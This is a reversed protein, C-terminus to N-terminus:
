GVKRRLLYVREQSLGPLIDRYEEIIYNKSIEREADASEVICFENITGGFVFRRLHQRVLDWPHRIGFSVILNGSLKSLQDLIAVRVDSPTRHLLRLCVVVDVHEPLVDALKEADSNIFSVESYGIRQYERRAIELMNPSIDVAFVKAGIKAFLGALKGTGVPIDIVTAHPVRGLFREIVLRERRAVIRHPIQRWGGAVFAEHYEEAVADDKYHDRTQKEYDFGM